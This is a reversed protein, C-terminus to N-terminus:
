WVDGRGDRLIEGVTRWRRGQRVLEGRLDELQTERQERARRAVSDARAAEAEGRIQAAEAAARALPAAAACRDEWAAIAAERARQEAREEKVGRALELIVSDPLQVGAVHTIV